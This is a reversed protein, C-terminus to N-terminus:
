SRVETSEAASTLELFVDELSAKQVHLETMEIGNADLINVLAAVTRNVDTTRFRATTGECSLDEIGALPSLVSPDIPRNAGVFVAPSAASGAMLERTGGSAVVVGKNIVAVRDCLAEAEDIYHTTLLVTHGDEKM